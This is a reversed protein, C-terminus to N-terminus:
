DPEQGESRRDKLWTKLNRKFRSLKQETRIEMPLNNWNTISNCRFAEKTLLLRPPKTTIIGDEENELMNRLYTPLNWRTAKWLQTMSHYETLEKVDLWDCNYMLTRINTTRRNGTVYRGALNLCIQAKQVYNNTTNGWLSIGYTLRSIVLSEVLHKRAKESLCNRLRYLMGIQRRLSPLLAKKGSLLHSEWSLNGQLNLGLM